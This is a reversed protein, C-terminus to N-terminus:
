SRVDTSTRTALLRALNRLGRHQLVRIAGPSKGLIEALRPTDLGGIVRLLVVDAQDPPLRRVLDIAAQADLADLVERDPEEAAIREDAEEDHGTEVPHRLTHRHLDILRNRAITFLWGRFDAESGDFRALAEAVALWTDSAIDEAAEANRGRLYRLLGPNCARWLQAIASHEGRKAAALLEDFGEIM